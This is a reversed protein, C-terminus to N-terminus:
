EKNNKLFNGMFPKENTDQAHQINTILEQIEESNIIQQAQKAYELAEKLHGSNMYIASINYYIMYKENKTKALTYAKKMAKIASSTKNLEAYAVGLDIYGAALDPANKIYNKAEALKRSSIEESTGLVVPAYILDKTKLDKLPTNTIQPLLTYLLKITNIDKSSLYQFSSRYPAYFSNSNETTMYMLDGTSYSHGMIGLAHGLEHLITNYMEKDSFYNGYPDKSYLTITSKKLLNGKIEPTTYGVVYKCGDQTCNNKPPESIKVLIDADSLNETLEFEIFGTSAQWQSLASLIQTKYYDPLNTGSMDQLGVKLPFKNKDWRLIGRDFPAQEIYNDGFTNLIKRKWQSLAADAAQQASDLERGSAIEFIEKQVTITPSLHTLTKVYYYRYDKNLKDSNYARKLNIYAKAFDQQKYYNLGKNYYYSPMFKYLIGFIIAISCIIVTIIRDSNNKRQTM